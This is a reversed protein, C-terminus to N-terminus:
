DMATARKAEWHRVLDDHDTIEGADAAALGESIARIQWENADLYQRLAETALYSLSRDTVSALLDLRQRLEDDVRFAIPASM